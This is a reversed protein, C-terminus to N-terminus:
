VNPRRWDLHYRGDPEMRIEHAGEMAQRISSAIQLSINEHHKATSILLDTIATCSVLNLGCLLLCVSFKSSQLFPPDFSM